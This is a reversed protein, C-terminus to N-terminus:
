FSLLIDCCEEVHCGEFYLNEMPIWRSQFAILGDAGNRELLRAERLPLPATLFVKLHYYDRLDPRLSYAGEVITLPAPSISLEQGFNGVRCQWPRYVATQQCSLPSLVQELFRESDVNGGPTRLREVSRKDPPLFFDDMRIVPAHYRAGLEQALTSKGSACPGDIALLVHPHQALKEEIITYLATLNM